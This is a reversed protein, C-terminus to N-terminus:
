VTRRILKYLEGNTLINIEKLVEKVQAITISVKLGEKLTVMRAAQNLNM